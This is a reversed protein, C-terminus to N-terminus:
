GSEADNKGDRKEIAAVASEPLTAYMEDVHKDQSIMAEAILNVLSFLKEATARDDKLDLQGPHVANNGVVRVIDLARQIKPDLGKKVLSGIDDSLNKGKEGLFVCLNQIALRLLAASGRPSLDLITSAEDYDDRVGDPLDPNPLPASGEAPWALRNHIWISLQDCDFCRSVWLNNLRRDIFESEIAELFPRGKAMRDAWELVGQRGQAEAETRAPAESHLFDRLEGATTPTHYDPTKGKSLAMSFVDYWFQTTLTGCHPCNFATVEIEPPVYRRRADTM